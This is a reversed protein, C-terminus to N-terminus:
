STPRALVRLATTLAEDQSTRPDDVAHIQPDVGVGSIDTGAPTTYHAITMELAAGNPLPDISQVLAKGFTHEGVITARHNDRLAAAVIEASSASYRDVLVVLPATTALGRAAHFVERPGHASALSVVVGKSLFLSSVAIAQELLGGPNQRLDLVFGRAGERQLRHLERGLVVAAGVRFSSLRLVGWRKGAYSILRGEVVPAHVIGRRVDFTMNRRGRQVGLQVTTGQPGLISALGASMSLHKAPADGIRVITDGVRVGARAAPGPRITSVVVFGRASPLLSVGIGSYTSATEDRVLKYTSPALYATYPDGLASIIKHVSGLGLVEPPVPRYYHAALAERVQDVVDPIAVPRDVRSAASLRYGVAFPVGLALLVSSLVLARRM